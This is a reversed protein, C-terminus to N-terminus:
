RACGREAADGATRAVELAFLEQLMRAYERSKASGAQANLSEVPEHVFEDTITTALVRVAEQRPPSGRSGSSPWTWGRASSRRPTGASPPSSPCSSSRSCGGGSTRWRRRSSGGCARKEATAREPRNADAGDRLRNISYISVGPVSAAAPDVDRPVAMDVFLLPRDPRAEMTRQVLARDIMYTKSSTASFVVDAKELCSALGELRHAEFGYRDALTRAKDLSRNSVM